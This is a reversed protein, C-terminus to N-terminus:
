RLLLIQLILLKLNQSVRQLEIRWWKGPPISKNILSNQLKIIYQKKAERIMDLIEDRIRKRIKCKMESNIWPKDRPRVRINKKPIYTNMASNLELNIVENIININMPDFNCFKHKQESQFDVMSIVLEVM